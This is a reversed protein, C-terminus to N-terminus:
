ETLKLRVAFLRPIEPDIPLTVTVSV